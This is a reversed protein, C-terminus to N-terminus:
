FGSVELRSLHDGHVVEHATRLAAQECREAFCRVVLHMVTATHEHVVRGPVDVDFELGVEVGVLSEPSLLLELKHAAISTNYRLLVLRVVALGKNGLLEVLPEAQELLDDSMGSDTGMVVVRGGLSAHACEHGDGARLHEM